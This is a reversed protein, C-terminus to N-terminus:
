LVLVLNIHFSSLVAHKSTDLTRRQPIKTVRDSKITSKGEQTCVHSRKVTKLVITGIIGIHPTGSYIVEFWRRSLLM